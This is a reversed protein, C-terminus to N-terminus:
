EIYLGADEEPKRIVSAGLEELTKIGWSTKYRGEKNAELTLLDVIAKGAEENQTM